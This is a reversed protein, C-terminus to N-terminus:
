KLKVIQSQCILTGYCNCFWKLEEHSFVFFFTVAKLQLEDGISFNFDKDNLCCNTQHSINNLWNKSM